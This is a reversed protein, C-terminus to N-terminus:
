LLDSVLIQQFRRSAMLVGRGLHAELEMARVEGLAQGYRKGLPETKLYLQEKQPLFSWHNRMM